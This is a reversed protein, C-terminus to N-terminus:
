QWLIDKISGEGVFGFLQLINFISRSPAVTCAVILPRLYLTIFLPRSRAKQLAWYLPKHQLSGPLISTAVHHFRMLANGNQVWQCKNRFPARKMFNQQYTSYDDRVQVHQICQWNRQIEVFKKENSVFSFLFSNLINNTPGSPSLVLPAWCSEWECSHQLCCRYLQPLKTLYAFHFQTAVIVCLIKYCGSPEKM